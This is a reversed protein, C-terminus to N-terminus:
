RILELPANPARPAGTKPKSHQSKATPENFVAQDTSSTTPWRCVSAIRSRLSSVSGLNFRLDHKTGNYDFVTVLLTGNDALANIFEIANDSVAGSGKPSAAWHRETVPNDNIRYYVRLSEWGLFHSTTVYAETSKANCKLVLTANGDASALTGLLQSADELSLKDAKVDWNAGTAGSSPTISGIIKDFFTGSKPAAPLQPTAVPPPESIAAASTQPIAVSPAVSTATTSSKSTAVSPPESTIAISSQPITVLPTASASGSAQPITVLPPESAPRSMAHDYCRVRAAEDTILTCAKLQLATVDPEQQAGAISAWLNATVLGVALVIARLVFSGALVYSGDRVVIAQCGRNSSKKRPSDAMCLFASGIIEQIEASEHWRHVV